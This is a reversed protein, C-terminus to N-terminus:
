LRRYVFGAEVAADEELAGTVDILAPDEALDGAVAELDLQEFEAHPTALLIADFGEFSLQDQVEIEFSERVADNDAFPDFGEIDIDYEQLTDVANTVKSSRIDGVGPKYSLGLVLVRSDRLTKHCENLAKITLDAVYGPVSENVKRSMRMLEPDFGERASRYTFFYPDVPICHGGVLGPRYDHFNWKTGAAELVAQGDIDLRELAMSLENVYAINLDRQTNEVVKSAEAVEISPARHVGADVVSEYLTAVDELVEETQGGVVKVVDKLGHEADGPTAREPSYGVFFDTGASLGSASELEPILVERTSGPYVTSELIVTTGPEMKSGVTTAASEVYSLDPQDDEDIPTPVAIIVYDAEAIETADTTYSIDGDQISEDSLDGTTDVGEQLQDVTSEDVDYGIVRYNSQAFGVALPLGVYGLGVVCITAERASQEETHRLTTGKDSSHLPYQEDEREDARKETDSITTTM